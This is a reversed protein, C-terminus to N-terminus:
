NVAPGTHPRTRLPRRIFVQGEKRLDHYAQVFGPYQARMVLFAEGWAQIVDLLLESVEVAEANSKGHYRKAARVMDRMFSSSSYDAGIAAHVRQGCNKVLAEALSVALFVTKTKLSSVKRRLYLVVEARRCFLPALPFRRTLLTCFAFLRMCTCVYLETGNIRNVHDVCEMNIAWDPRLMIDDTARDILRKMEEFRERDHGSKLSAGPVTANLAINSINLNSLEAIGPLRFEM